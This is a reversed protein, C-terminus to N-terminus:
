PEGEFIPEKLIEQVSWPCFSPVSTGPLGTEVLALKRARPYAERIFDEVLPMLSPNDRLLKDVRYHGELLSKQWSRSRREPQYHWKVLHLLITELHSELAHRERKALDEIEEVLHEIDLDDWWKKRLLSAQHLAWAHFDHEYENM